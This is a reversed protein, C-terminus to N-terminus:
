QKLVALWNSQVALTTEVATPARLVVLFRQGDKTAIYRNRRQEAEINVSFLTKPLGASFSSGDTNVEVAMLTNGQLYFLEKGDGRWQPQNGDRNSIQWKSGSDNGDWPFRRVFINSEGNEWSRYAVWRGNPAFRGSDERFRAPPFPTRRREGNLSLVALRPETKTSAFNFLLFRGDASIDEVNLAEESILVPEVEGAGDARKRYINRPGKQASTFIIWRGDPMWRANLDDGPDFTLRSSTGLLPQMIWLDRLKTRPDAIAVVVRDENPSFSPGSYGATDGVTGLRKGARDIWTLQTKDPESARVKWVLVGNESASFAAFPLTVEGAYSTTQSAVQEAVRVPEGTIELRKLDFRQALLTHEKTFLLYGPPVYVALATGKLVLKRRAGPAVSAVYIGDDQQNRNKSFYLFHEGDPLFRPSIQEIEGEASLNLPTPQGGSAAVRSLKARLTFLITGAQNWSGPLSGGPECITLASGGSVDIKRLRGSTWFAIFRSDPSWFPSFGGETGPLPKAEASDLRRLWLSTENRGQASFPLASYVIYKGNPSVAPADYWLFSWNEPLGSTFSVALKEEPQERLHLVALVFAILVLVLAGLALGRGIWELSSRRLLPIADRAATQAEASANVGAPLNLEALAFALDGAAQFRKEPQKELCRRVIRWLSAPLEPALEVLAVPEGTLLAAKVEDPTAGEFPRRGALMEYLMVGLAFIDTRHDVREGRAQEPSMYSATGLVAGPTTLPHLRFSSPHPIFSSTPAGVEDKMRGGEDKGSSRGGEDKGDLKAIGFDLVKVLGDKRVMVNEPKIDRHTIGAEHAAALAAAVQAAIDLAESLRLRQQPANTLRQRLTEGEIYETVIFRRQEVEGIEYVTLINPHNLASAARAEQEFRRVREADTTFEAPLLKVAAKRGLRTDHALWVEGMGGRGLPSLIEYAGIQAPAPGPETAFSLERAAVQLVPAEIFSAPEGDYALLSAVERRLGEDGACAEFLFAARAGAERELAAHYLDEIQNWRESM